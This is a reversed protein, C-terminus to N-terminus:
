IFEDTGQRNVIMDDFIEILQQMEEILSQIKVPSIETTSHLILNRTQEIHNLIGVQRDNIYHNRRLEMIVPGMSANEPIVIDRYNAMEHHYLLIMSIVMTDYVELFRGSLEDKESKVMTESVFEKDDEPVEVKDLAKIAAEIPPKLEATIECVRAYDAPTFINNHAVKCRLQYLEGWKKALHGGEVKVLEKFFRDWNSKPIYDELEAYPIDQKKSIYKKLEDMNSNRPFPDFMFNKLEIFDLRYLFGNGEPTSKDKNKSKNIQNPINAKEWKLGINVTMFKTLFKRMLNEIEYILPYAKQSCNFSIDDWLVEYEKSHRGVIQKIKRLLEQYTKLRGNDLDFEADCDMSFNHCVYDTDGIVYSKLEYKYKENKYCIFNGDIEIESSTMLLNRFTKEDAAVGQTKDIPFLYETKM